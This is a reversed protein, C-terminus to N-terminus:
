FDGPIYRLIVEKHFIHNQYKKIEPFEQRLKKMFLHLHDLSKLHMEFELDCTDLVEVIYVVYPDSRLYELLQEKRKKSLNEIYLEIKEHAYSLKSLDLACRYGLILKEKEMRRIRNIVAMSTLGVKKAMETSPLKVNETLLHLIKRDIGDVKVLTAEGWVLQERDKTHYLYKRKFHYIKTAISPKKIKIVSYFQHNLNDMVEKIEEITKFFGSLSINMNDRVVFWGLPPTNRTFELFKEEIEPSVRELEIIYRCYIYGLKSLDIVPYYGTIIGRKELQKIRYNTVENSLGVKKAIQSIPQRANFDLEKLIKMDKVHLKVM